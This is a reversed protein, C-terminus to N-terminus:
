HHENSSQKQKEESQKTENHFYVTRIPFPINVGNEDLRNKIMSIVQDRVALVKAQHPDTWWRARLNVSSADLAVTQVDPAPQKLVGDTSRLVDLMIKRAQEINDEYGIGVDYESRRKDFATNVTVSNTFLESNPIVVRRGDYTKMITARTEIEEVTGEYSGAVIQDGINFPRTLLILIGALFNQLIDRFAFGIAVSSVGLLTILEGPDFSPIIISLTILVGASIVLWRAIRGLLLKANSELNSKEVLREILSKTWGAIFYFLVFVVLGIVINPLAAILGNIMENIKDLAASVSVEM